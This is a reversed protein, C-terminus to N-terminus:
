ISISFSDRKVRVDSYYEGGEITHIVSTILYKGSLSNDFLDNDDDGTLAKKEEPDVSKPFKLEIKRGPTLNFDGFM